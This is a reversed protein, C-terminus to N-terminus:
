MYKEDDAGRFEAGLFADSIACAMDPGVIFSGFAIIQSGNLERTLRATLPESCVAARIGRIKNAAISIGTGTGCILVGRDLMGSIIQEGVEVAYHASYKGEEAPSPGFETVKIGKTTLHNAIAEKLKYGAKDFGLGVRM